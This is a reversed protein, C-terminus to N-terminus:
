LCAAPTALGSVDGMRELCEALNSSGFGKSDVGDGPCNGLGSTVPTLAESDNAVGPDIGEIVIDTM